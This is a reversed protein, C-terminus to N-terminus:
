ISVFYDRNNQICDSLTAFDCSLCSEVTISSSYSQQNLTFKLAAWSFTEESWHKINKPFSDFLFAPNNVVM